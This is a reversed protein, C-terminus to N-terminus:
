PQKNVSHRSVAFPSMPEIGAVIEDWETVSDHTQHLTPSKKSFQHNRQWKRPIRMDCRLTNVIVVVLVVVFRTYLSLKYAQQSHQLKEFIKVLNEFVFWNLMCTCNLLSLCVLWGQLAGHTLHHHQHRQGRTISTTLANWEQQKFMGYVFCYSTCYVALFSLTNRHLNPFCIGHGTSVLMVVIRSYVSVMLTLFAEILFMVSSPATQSPPSANRQRHQYFTFITHLLHRHHM